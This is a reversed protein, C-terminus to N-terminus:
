DADNTVAVALEARRFFSADLNAAWRLETLNLGVHVFALPNRLKDALEFTVVDIEAALHRIMWKIAGIKSAPILLTVIFRVIHELLKPKVIVRGVVTKKFSQDLSGASEHVQLLIELVWGMGFVSPTQSRGHFQEFQRFLIQGSECRSM